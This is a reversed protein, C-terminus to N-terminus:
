VVPPVSLAMSLTYGFNIATSFMEAPLLSAHVKAKPEGALLNRILNIDQSYNLEEAHYCGVFRGRHYMALCNTKSKPLTFALCATQKKERIWEAIYDMYERADRKDSRAVPYGLFLASLSLVAGEDLEYLLAETDPWAWDAIMLQIAADMPQLETMNANGYVAGVVRGQYLLVASRSQGTASFAKLAGTIKSSELQFILGELDHEQVMLRQVPTGPLAEPILDIARKARFAMPRDQAWVQFALDARQGGNGGQMQQAPAPSGHTLATLLMRGQVICVFQAIIEQGLGIKVETPVFGPISEGKVSVAYGGPEAATIVCTMNQGPMYEPTPDSNFWANLSSM